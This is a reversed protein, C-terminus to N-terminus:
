LSIALSSMAPQGNVLQAAIAYRILEATTKLHMKKLIRTRYTSVTKISLSLTAAIQKVTKGEALMWLVQYERNTLATHPPRDAEATVEVALRESWPRVSM